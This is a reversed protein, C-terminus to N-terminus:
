ITQSYRPAETAKPKKLYVDFVMCINRIFFRGRATVDLARDSLEVLKDKEFPELGALEERFYFRFDIGHRREFGPLDLHFNCIIQTILDARIKDDETLRCVKELPLRGADLPGEYEPLTKHDQTYVGAAFSISSIGFSLLDTGARTTYGMFNRHLTGQNQALTLEDEPRAFHDMGIAVFGAQTLKEYALLYLLLKTEPDPLRAPDIRKQHPRIWPIHAYSYIALRTAGMEIVRGITREFTELTQGPLGYILDVNIFRIGTERACDMARATDEETQFRKILDQVEEDFDQVGLSVRNLGMPRLADIHERKMDCPDLEISFEMDPAPSFRSLTDRTIDALQDPTMYTPTGGGFHLQVLRRDPHFDRSRLDLEKRFYSIYRDGVERHRGRVITNCGCFLCRRYCFPIHIYVSLPTSPRSAQLAALGAEEGPGADAWQPATPYSTYRPGQVNYRHLADKLWVTDLTQARQSM